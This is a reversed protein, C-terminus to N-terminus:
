FRLDCALMPNMKLKLAEKETRTGRTKVDSKIHAQRYLTDTHEVYNECYVVIIEKFHNQGHM